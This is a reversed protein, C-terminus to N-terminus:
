VHGARIRAQAARVDDVGAHAADADWAADFEAKTVPTMTPAVMVLEIPDYAGGEIKQYEAELMGDLLVEATRVSRREGTERAFEDAIAQVLARQTSVGYQAKLATMQASM